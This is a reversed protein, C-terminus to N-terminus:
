IFHGAFHMQLVLCNRAWIVDRTKRVQEICWDYGYEYSSSIKPAIIKAALLIASEAASREARQLRRLEDNRIAEHVVDSQCDANEAHKNFSDEEDQTM